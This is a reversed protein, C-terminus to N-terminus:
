TLQWGITIKKRALTTSGVLWWNSARARLSRGIPSSPSSPPRALQKTDAGDARPPTTAPAPELLVTGSGPTSCLREQYEARKALWLKSHCDQGRCHPGHKNANRSSSSDILLVIRVRPGLTPEAECRVKAPSSRGLGSLWLGHAFHISRAQLPNALRKPRNDAMTAAKSRPALLSPCIRRRFSRPRIANRFHSSAPAIPGAVQSVRHDPSWCKRQM